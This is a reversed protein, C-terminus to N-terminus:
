LKVDWVFLDQQNEVDLKSSTEKPLIWKVNFGNLRANEVADQLDKGSYHSVVIWTAKTNLKPVENNMLSSLPSVIKDVNIRSLNQYYIINHNPDCGSEITVNKETIDDCGNSILGVTIGQELFRSALTAAISIGEEVLAEPDWANYRETNLFQMIEQSSTYSFENVKLEGTKATASWNIQKLSDFPYYERIGKLEFPDEVIHRRTVVEGLLREFQVEVDIDSLLKPYVYFEITNYVNEVFKYKAFLDGTTLNFESIRYYGRRIGKFTFQKEVKEFPLLLYSDKKYNDNSKIEFREDGFILNRSVEFQFSIWWLPLWSKNCLEEIIQAREGQFIALTSFELRSTLNKFCYKKYIRAQLSYFAMAIILILIIKM